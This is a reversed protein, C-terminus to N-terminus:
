SCHLDCQNLLPELYTFSKWLHIHLYNLIYWYVLLIDFSIYTLSIASALFLCVGFSIIVCPMFMGMFLVAIAIKYLCLLFVPFTGKKQVEEKPAEIIQDPKPPVTKSPEQKTPKPKKEEVLVKFFM